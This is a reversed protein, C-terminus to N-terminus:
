RGEPDFLTPTTTTQNTLIRAKRGSPLTETRGTDALDGLDVLVAAASRLRQESYRVGVYKAVAVLGTLTMEPGHHDFLWLVCSESPSTAISRAAAWSTWPDDRRAHAPPNM